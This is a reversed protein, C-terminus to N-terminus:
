DGSLLNERIRGLATEDAYLADRMYSDISGFEDKMRKFASDLYEAHVEVIPIYREIDDGTGGLDFFKLSEAIQDGAYITNTYLYDQYITDMHVDLAYLLLAAAIGTRDKGATCHILLPLDASAAACKLMETYHATHELPMEYYIDIMMQKPDHHQALLQGMLEPLHKENDLPHPHTIVNPTHDDHWLSPERTRESHRRFDIVSQIDLEKIQTRDEETLGSLKASRYIRNHKVSAGRRTQYGGLDRFNYSGALPILHPTNMDIEYAHPRM